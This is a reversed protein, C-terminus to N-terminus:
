EVSEFKGFDDPPQVERATASLGTLGAHSSGVAAPAARCAAQQRVQGHTPRYALSAAPSPPVL